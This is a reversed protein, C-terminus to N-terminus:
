IWYTHTLIRYQHKEKQSKWKMQSGRTECTLQPLVWVLVMRLLYTNISKILTTFPYSESWEFFNADLFLLVIPATHFVGPEGLSSGHFTCLSCLRGKRVRPQKRGHGRTTWCRVWRPVCMGSVESGGDAWTSPPCGLHRCLPIALCVAAGWCPNFGWEWWKRVKQSWGLQQTLECTSCIWACGELKDRLNCSTVEQLVQSRLVSVLVWATLARTSSIANSIPCPLPSCSMEM